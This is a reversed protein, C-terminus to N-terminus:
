WTVMMITPMQRNVKKRTFQRESERITKQTQNVDMSLWGNEQDEIGAPEPGPSKM